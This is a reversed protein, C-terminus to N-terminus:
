AADEQAKSRHWEVFADLLREALAEPVSGFKLDASGYYSVEVDVSPERLSPAQWASRFKAEETGRTGNSLASGGIRALLRRAVDFQSNRRADVEIRRKEAQRWLGTFAPLFRRQLDKAIVQPSRSASFGISPADEKYHLVSQAMCGGTSDKPYDGSVGLKDGTRPWQRYMHWEAGKLEPDSGAYCFRAYGTPEGDADLDSAFRWDTLFPAVQKATEMALTNEKSM